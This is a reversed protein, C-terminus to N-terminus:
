VFMVMTHSKGSGQTHWLLGGRRKKGKVGELEEEVRMLMRAIAFYQQYRMIKKIGADYIIYNKALDLLRKPELLAVVGKDQETALRDTRQKHEGYTKLDECVKSHVSLDIPNEIYRKVYKELEEKSIGKEKWASYFKAPTMTTGYRFEAGNTAILLQPYIFFKPCYGARQNREMQAIAEQIDVGSKKNEIVVFPIGNVFCVIDSRINSKGSAAYEVTVHFANREPHKFDIFRFSRSINKGGHFVKITKGGTTPMIMNYVTRSTDILGELALNELEDIADEVNKESFKYEQGYYEYGNIEMLAQAAIEKLLFKSADGSRQRMVEEPSLYVYGMNVLVEVFPLQSQRAEDFHAKIENM